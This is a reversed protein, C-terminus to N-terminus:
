TNIFSLQTNIITTVLAKIKFYDENPEELELPKSNLKFIKRFLGSIGKNKREWKLLIKKHQEQYNEFNLLAINRIEELESGAELDPEKKIYYVISDNEFFIEIDLKYSSELYGRDNFLYTDLTSNNKDNPADLNYTFFDVGLKSESQFLRIFKSDDIKIFDSVSSKSLPKIFDNNILLENLIKAIKIEEGNM